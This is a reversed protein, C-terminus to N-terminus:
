DFDEVRWVGSERKLVVRHGGPIRVEARDGKVQVDLTEPQDLGDVLSRMDGELASQSETSLVRLLAAYSRRSLARRLDALAQTPTRAGTPLTGAGAIRFRGQELALEVQEGDAYRLTATAELKADERAISRANQSLEKQSEKVLRATGERGYSEQADRTLLQYVGDTDGREVAAAYREAAGRPDPLASPSCGGLGLAAVVLPALRWPSPLVSRFM